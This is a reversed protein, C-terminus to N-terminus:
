PRTGEDRGPRSHHLWRRAQHLWRTLRHPLARLEQPAPRAHRTAPARIEDSGITVVLQPSGPPEALTGTVRGDRSVRVDTVPQDGIRADLFIGPRILGSGEITVQFGSGLRPRVECSRIVPRPRHDQAARRVRHWRDPGISM